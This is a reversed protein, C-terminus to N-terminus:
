EDKVTKQRIGTVAPDSPAAKGGGNLVSMSSQKMKWAMFEQWHGTARMATTWCSGEGLVQVGRSESKLIDKGKCQAIPLWQGLVFRDPGFQVVAAEKYGASVLFDYAEERTM